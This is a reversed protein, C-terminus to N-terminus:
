KPSTGPMPLPSVNYCDPINVAEKSQAVYGVIGSGWPVRVEEYRVQELTSQCSVDFLQSVLCRETSDRDGHVLFLSCRDANTIVQM